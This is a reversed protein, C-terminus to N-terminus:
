KWSKPFFLKKNTDDTSLVDSSLHYSHLQIDDEASFVITGPTGPVIAKKEVSNCEKINYRIYTAFTLKVNFLIKVYYSCKSMMYWLFNFFEGARRM